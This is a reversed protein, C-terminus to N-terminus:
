KVVGLNKRVYVSSETLLSDLYLKMQRCCSEAACCLASFKRIDDM